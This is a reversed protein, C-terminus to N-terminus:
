SGVHYKKTVKKCLKSVVVKESAAAAEAEASKSTLVQQGITLVNQVTWYLLLAAAFNDCFIPFIFSMWQLMKQQANDTTSTPTLRMQFFMTIGMLLPLINIPFAGLCAVTDPISLDKIWFFSQCRM